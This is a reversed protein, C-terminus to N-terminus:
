SICSPARARLSTSALPMFTSRSYSVSIFRLERRSLLKGIDEDCFPDNVFVGGLPRVFSPYGRVLIRELTDIVRENTAELFGFCPLMDAIDEFSELDFAIRPTENM